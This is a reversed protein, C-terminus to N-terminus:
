IRTCKEIEEKRKIKMEFDAIIVITSATKM